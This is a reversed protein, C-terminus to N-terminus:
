NKNIKLAFELTYIAEGACVDGDPIRRQVKFNWLTFQMFLLFLKEFTTESGLGLWRKTGGPSALNFLTSDIEEHIKKSTPCEVFL